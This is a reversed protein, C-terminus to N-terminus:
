FTYLLDIQLRSLKREPPTTVGGNLPRGFLGTFQFRINKYANYFVEVRHETVNSTQRMDDFNFAGFIAEREIFMRTYAFQLDHPESLRGLRSELWYGRRERPNCAATTSATSGSPAFLNIANACAKTNQVFDGLAIIPWKASPTKIDFRAITDLLAFQSNFQANVVTGASNKWVTMSNQVSGPNLKLLGSAPSAANATQLSFAVPDAKHYNYFATSATLKLWNALQWETLAQGGYVMSQVISQNLPNVLNGNVGAIEAFPLQFGSFTVRKLVPTKPLAFNLTEVAGEPNLDNDWTLETRTWPYAFKGGVISLQKIQHPTYQIFAKDLYFPKRTFQQSADQNATIPQNIDGTALSLGGAFDSNLRTNLNLRARYRLRDRVQSNNSPGGFFPEDRLRFDGSFTFPGIQRVRDEIQRAVDPPAQAAVPMAAPLTAPASISPSSEVSSLLVAATNPASSELSRIGRATSVKLEDELAQIRQEQKMLQSNQADLVGRMESLEEELLEVDSKASRAGTPGRAGSTKAATADAMLTRDRGQGAPRLNSAQGFVNIAAGAWCVTFALAFIKLSTISGNGAARVISDGM